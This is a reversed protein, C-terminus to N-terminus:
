ESQVKAGMAVLQLCSVQASQLSVYPTYGRKSGEEGFIRKVKAKYESNKAEYLFRSVATPGM